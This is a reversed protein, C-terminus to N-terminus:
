VKLPQDSNDPVPESKLYPELKEDLVDRVFQEFADMRCIAGSM